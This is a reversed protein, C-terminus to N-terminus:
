PIQLDAGRPPQFQPVAKTVGKAEIIGPGTIHGFFVYQGKANTVTRHRIGSETLTVEAGPLPAGAATTVTGSAATELTQPPVLLFAFTNYITDTYVAVETVGQYSYAPGGLTVSASQTTGSSSSTSNTSTWTWSGNAALTTSAMDLFGATGSVKLGVKTSYSTKTTSTTTSSDSITTTIPIVPDNPTAPAEYPFMTNAPTFRAPDLTSPNSALPDSALINPYDASTVEAATLQALVGPRWQYHGNLEGVLVYQIPSTSNDGFTWSAASSSLSLAIQPKLLLYIADEDHNIGDQAPGARQITTLTSQKIALSQTDATTTGYSFSVSGSADSGLFGGKNSVSVGISQSFSQSASTLTGKTVGSGYSVSSSAKGGNTGPPAYIVTLVLYKATATGSYLKSGVAVWNVTIASLVNGNGSISPSFGTTTLKSPVISLFGPAPEPVGPHPGHDVPYNIANLSGVSLIVQPTTGFEQPFTIANPTATWV